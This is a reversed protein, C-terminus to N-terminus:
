KQWVGVNGTVRLSIVGGANLNKCIKADIIMVVVAVVATVLQHVFFSQESYVQKGLVSNLFNARMPGIAYIVVLGVMILALTLIAIIRDSRHKRM